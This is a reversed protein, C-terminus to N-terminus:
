FRLKRATSPRKFSSPELYGRFAQLVKEQQMLIDNVTAVEEEFANIIQLLRRSARRKVKLVKNETTLEENPKLLIINNLINWVNRM